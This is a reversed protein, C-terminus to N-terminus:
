MRDCLRVFGATAAYLGAILALIWLDTMSLERKGGDRLMRRALCFAGCLRSSSMRTMCYALPRWARKCARGPDVRIARRARTGAPAGADDVEWPFNVRTRQAPTRTAQQATNGSNLAGVSRNTRSLRAPLPPMPSM